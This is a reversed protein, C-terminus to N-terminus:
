VQLEKCALCPKNVQGSLASEFQSMATEISVNFLSAYDIAMATLSESLYYSTEESIQGLASLMNKFTAQYNMVSETSLNFARTLSNVFQLAEDYYGKTSVQFKNLTENFNVAESAMNGIAIGIRKFYNFLFYIKGLNFLSSFSKSASKSKKDINGIEKTTQRLKLNAKDIKLNTENVKALTTQVKQLKNILNDLTKEVSKARAEIKVLVNGVDYTAM